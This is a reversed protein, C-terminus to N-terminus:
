FGLRYIEEIERLEKKRIEYFGMLFLVAPVVIIMAVSLQLAHQFNTIWVFLFFIGSFAFFEAFIWLGKAIVYLLFFTVSKTSHIMADM